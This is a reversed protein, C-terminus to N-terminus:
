PARSSFSEPFDGWTLSLVKNVEMGSQWILLLPVRQAIPLAKLLARIDNAPLPPPPPLPKQLTVAFNGYLPSDNRKYFLKVFSASTLRSQDVVGKKVLYVNVFEDLWDTHRRKRGVEIPGSEFVCRLNDVWLEDPTLTVGKVNRLWTFYRDIHFLASYWSSTKAYRLFRRMAPTDGIKLLLKEGSKRKQEEYRNRRVSGLVPKLTSTM